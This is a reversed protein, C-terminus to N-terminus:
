VRFRIGGYVSVCPVRFRYKSVQEAFLEPPPPHDPQRPLMSESDDASASSSPLLVEMPPVEQLLNM